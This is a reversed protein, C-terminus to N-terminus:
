KGGVKIEEPERRKKQKDVAKLAEAVASKVIDRVEDATFTKRELVVVGRQRQKLSSWVPQGTTAPGEPDRDPTEFPRGDLAFFSHDAQVDKLGPIKAM